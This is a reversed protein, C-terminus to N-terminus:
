KGDIKYSYQDTFGAPLATQLTTKSSYLKTVVMFYIQKEECWQKIIIAIALLM